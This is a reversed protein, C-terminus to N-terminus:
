LKLYEEYAKVTFRRAERIVDDTHAGVGMSQIVAPLVALFIRMRNNKEAPRKSEDIYEAKVGHKKLINAEEETM